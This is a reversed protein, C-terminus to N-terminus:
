EIALEAIRSALEVRHFAYRSRYAQNITCGVPAYCGELGRQFQGRCETLITAGECAPVRESNDFPRPPIM